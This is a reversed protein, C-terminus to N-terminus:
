AHTQAKIISVRKVTREDAEQVVLRIGDQMFEEGAKPIAGATKLVFDALTDTEKGPLEVNFFRKIARLETDGDALITNRDIRKILTPAVDKEDIIEGVLEEMLDELTAVGETGGFEDLVIAMHMSKKQFERFLASVEMNHPVFFPERAIEKLSIYVDKQEVLHQFLDRVYVIGIVTDITGDYVPIRSYSAALIKPLSHEITMSADLAFVNVRPTMIDEAFIDNLQFVRVLMEHEKKEIAGEEVAMTALARLEGETVGSVAVKKGFFLLLQHSLRESLDVLPRLVLSLAQVPRAVALSIPTAFASALTKPIIEAFVLFAITLVFTAAGVWVSGFVEIVIVTALASFSIQVFNNGILITSLFRNPKEKLWALSKAGPIKRELLERVKAAGLSVLATESAAFFGSLLLLIFLFLIKTDM